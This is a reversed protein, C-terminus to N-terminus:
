SQRKLYWGFLAAAGVFVAFGIIKIVIRLDDKFQVGLLHIGVAAAGVELISVAAGLGDAPLFKKAKLEASGAASAMVTSPFAALRGLFVLRVGKKKLVKRSESIRKAPLIRGAIGPLDGKKLEDARARGLYYFHWVGLVMLPLAAIVLQVILSPKTQDLALLMGALLVEKTPRLVVLWLFHERYLFPALPFAALALIARVGAIAILTTEFRDSKILSKM